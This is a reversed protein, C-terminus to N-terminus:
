SPSSMILDSSRLLKRDQPDWHVSIDVFGTEASGKVGSWGTGMSQFARASLKLTLNKVLDPVAPWGWTATIGLTGRGLVFQAPPTTNATAITPLQIGYYPRLATASTTSGALDPNEPILWFNSPPTIGNGTVIDYKTADTIDNNEAKLIRVQTVSYFDRYLIQRTTNANAVSFWREATTDSYFFRHCQNDIFRSADALLQTGIAANLTPDFGPLYAGLDTLTAYSALGAV